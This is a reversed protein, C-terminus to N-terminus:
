QPIGELSELSLGDDHSQVAVGTYIHVDFRKVPKPPGMLRRNEIKMTAVDNAHFEEVTAYLGSKTRYLRGYVVHKRVDKDVKFDHVLVRRTTEELTVGAQWPQDEEVEVIKRTTVEEVKEVVVWRKM